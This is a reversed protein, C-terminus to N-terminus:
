YYLLPDWGTPTANGAEIVGVARLAVLLAMALIDSQPKPERTSLSNGITVHADLNNKSASMTTLALRTLQIAYSMLLPIVKFGARLGLCAM